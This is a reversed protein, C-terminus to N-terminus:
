HGYHIEMNIRRASLILGELEVTILKKNVDLVNTFMCLSKRASPKKVPSSTMPSIPSNNTFGEPTYVM